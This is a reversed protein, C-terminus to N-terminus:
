KCRRNLTCQNEVSFVNKRNSYDISEDRCLRNTHKILAFAAWVFPIQPSIYSIGAGVFFPLVYFSYKGVDLSVVFVSLLFLLFFVVGYEVIFLAVFNHAYFSLIHESSMTGNGFFVQSISITELYRSLDEYLQIKTLFSADEAIKYFVFSM